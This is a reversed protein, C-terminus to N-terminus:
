VLSRQQYLATDEFGLGRYYERTGVSSIVNIREFGAERAQDCAAEILRKGLGLHQAGEGTQHLQAVKGYVHLERIMAERLAIPVAAQHTLVYEGKPLSLRLFGAI